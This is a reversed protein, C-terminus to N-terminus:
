TFLSTIAFAQKRSLEGGGARRRCPFVLVPTLLPLRPALSRGLQGPSLRRRFRGVRLLYWYFLQYRPQRPRLIKTTAMSVDAVSSCTAHCLLSPDTVPVKEAAEDIASFIREGSTPPPPSPLPSNVWAWGGSIVVRVPASGRGLVFFPDERPLLAGRQRGSPQGEM